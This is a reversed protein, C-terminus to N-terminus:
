WELGWIFNITYTGHREFVKKNLSLCRYNKDFQPKNFIVSYWDGVTETKEILGDQQWEPFKESLRKMLEDWTVDATCEYSGRGTHQSKGKVKLQKRIFTVLSQDKLEKAAM